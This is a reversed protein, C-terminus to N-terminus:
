TPPQEGGATAVSNVRTRSLPTRWLNGEHAVQCVVKGTCPLFHGHPRYAPRRWTLAITRVHTPAGADRYNCVRRSTTASLRHAEEGPPLRTTSRRCRPSLAGGESLPPHSRADFMAM